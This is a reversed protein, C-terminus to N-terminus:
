LKDGDAKQIAWAWVQKRPEECSVILINERVQQTLRNHLERILYRNLLTRRDTRCWCVQLGRKHAVVEAPWDAGRATITYRGTGREWGLDQVFLSGFQHEALAAVLSISQGQFQDVTYRQM